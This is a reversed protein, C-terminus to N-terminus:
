YDRHMSYSRNPKLALNSKAIRLQYIIQTRKRPDKEEKLQATLQAIKRRGKKASRLNFRAELLTHIIEYGNHKM